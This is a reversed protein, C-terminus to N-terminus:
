SISGYKRPSKSKKRRHNNLIVSQSVELTRKSYPDKMSAGPSLSPSHDGTNSNTNEAYPDEIVMSNGKGLKSAKNSAKEREKKILENWYAEPKRSLM